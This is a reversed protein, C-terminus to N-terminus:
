MCVAMMIEIGCVTRALKSSITSVAAPLQQSAAAAPTDPAWILGDTMSRPLHSQSTLTVQLV